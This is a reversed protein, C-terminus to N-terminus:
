FMGPFLNCVLFLGCGREGHSIGREFTNQLLRLVKKGLGRAAGVPQGRWQTWFRGEAEDLPGDEAGVGGNVVGWYAEVEINVKEVPYNHPAAGKWLDPEFQFGSCLGTDVYTGGGTEIGRKRCWCGPGHAEM